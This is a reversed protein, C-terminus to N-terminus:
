ILSKILELTFNYTDTFIWTFIYHHATIYIFSIQLEAPTQRRSCPSRGLVNGGTGTRDSFNLLTAHRQMHHVQLYKQFYTEKLTETHEHLYTSTGTKTYFIYNHHVYKYINNFIHLIFQM